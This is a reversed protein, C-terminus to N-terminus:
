KLVAKRIADTLSDFGSNTHRVCYATTVAPFWIVGLGLPIGVTMAGEGRRQSPFPKNFAALLMLGHCVVRMALSLWWGCVTRKARLERYKPHSAARTALDPEANDGPTRNRRGTHRDRM